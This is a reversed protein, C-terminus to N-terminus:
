LRLYLFLDELILLFLHGVRWSFLWCVTVPLELSPLHLFDMFTPSSARHEEYCCHPCWFLSIENEDLLSLIKFPEQVDLASWPTSVSIGVYHQHFHIVMAKQPLSEGFFGSQPSWDVSALIRFFLNYLLPCFGSIIWIDVLPISKPCTNLSHTTSVTIQRSPTWSLTSFKLFWSSSLTVLVVSSKNNFPFCFSHGAYKEM